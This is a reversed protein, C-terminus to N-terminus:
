LRDEDGVRMLVMDAGNRMKMLGEFHGDVRASEGAVNRPSLKLIMALVGIGDVGHRGPGLDRCEAREGDSKRGDAVRDRFARGEDNIRRGAPDYM